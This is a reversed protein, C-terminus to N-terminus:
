ARREILKMVTKILELMMNNYLLQIRNVKHDSNMRSDKLHVTTHIERIHILIKSYELTKM